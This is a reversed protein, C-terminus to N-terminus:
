AGCEATIDYGESYLGTVGNRVRWIFQETDCLSIATTIVEDQWVDILLSADIWEAFFYKLVSVGPVFDGFRVGCLAGPFGPMYSQIEPPLPGIECSAAIEAVTRSAWAKGQRITCGRDAAQEQEVLAEFAPYKACDEETVPPVIRSAAGGFVRGQNEEIPM